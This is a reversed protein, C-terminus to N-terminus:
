FPTLRFLYSYHFPLVYRRPHVPHKVVTVDTVTNTVAVPSLAPTNYKCLNNRHFDVNSNLHKCAAEDNDSDSFADLLFDLFSDDSHTTSYFEDEDHYHFVPHSALSISRLGFCFLLLFCLWKKFM